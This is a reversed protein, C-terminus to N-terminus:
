EFSIEILGKNKISKVARLADIYCLGVFNGHGLMLWQTNLKNTRKIGELIIKPNAYEINDIIILKNNLDNYLIYDYLVKAQNHANFVLVDFLEKNNIDWIDLNQKNIIDEAFLSKGTGSEDCIGLVRYVFDISYCRNCVRFKFPKIHTRINLM